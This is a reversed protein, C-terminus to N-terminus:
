RADFRGEPQGPGRDLRPDAHPNPRDLHRPDFSRGALKAKLWRWADYVASVGGRGRLMVEFRARDRAISADALRDMADTLAATLRDHWDDASGKGDSVIPAGFRLLAEPRKETWFVYEGALPVLTVGPLRRALHAVGPRLDIPRQRVDAFRGQATVWLCADPQDAIRQAARLFARAGAPDGREVGFFGLRKFFAYRQLMAADIPAYHRRDPYRISAAVIAMMPDWWGPHNAYVILPRGDWNPPPGERDVRVANFRRAVHRRAYWTFWRWLMPSRDPLDHTDM